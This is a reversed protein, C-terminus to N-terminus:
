TWYEKLINLWGTSLLFVALQDSSGGAGVFPWFFHLTTPLLCNLVCTSLWMVSFHGLQSEFGYRDKLFDRQSSVVLWCHLRSSTFSPTAQLAATWPTAFLWVLSLLQVVVYDPHCTRTLGEGEEVSLLQWFGEDPQYVTICFDTPKGRTLPM